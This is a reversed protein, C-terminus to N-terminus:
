GCMLSCSFFVDPGPYFAMSSFPFCVQLTSPAYARAFAWLVYCASDRVHIGVSHSGKRVDFQLARIVINVTRPLRHPLVLGRRVLEALALCGGHWASDNNINSPGFVDLVSSVM